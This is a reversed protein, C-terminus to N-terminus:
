RVVFVSCPADRVIHSAHSGFIHDSLRPDHSSMVVLDVDRDRCEELIVHEPHEHARFVPTITQGYREAIDDAYSQFIVQQDEPTDTLHQGLPSAATMLILEAGSAGSIACAVEISGTANDRHRMDVPVLLRQYALKPSTDTM